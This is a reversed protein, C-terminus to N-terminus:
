PKDMGARREAARDHDDKWDEVATQIAESLSEIAKTYADGELKEDQLFHAALVSCEPDYLIM